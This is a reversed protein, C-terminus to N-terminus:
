VHSCEEIFKKALAAHYEAETLVFFTCKSMVFHRDGCDLTIVSNHFNLDSIRGLGETEWGNATRLGDPYKWLVYDGNKLDMRKTRRM